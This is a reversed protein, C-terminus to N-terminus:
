LSQHHANKDTLNAAPSMADFQAESIKYPHSISGESEDLLQSRWILLRRRFYEIQQSNM